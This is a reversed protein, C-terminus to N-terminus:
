GALRRYVDEHSRATGEWTFLRARELGREVYGAPDDLVAAVARAMDDPSLPDFYEAADGCVEPLSTATSVAVPCGCAMAELPPLGFGEYLSPFVLASATRYLAVLEDDPVRGRTEVGQPLSGPDHGTGTLVLRLEPQERRSLAFAEYLRSHNKHPWPNAPYLLFPQRPEDGPHLRAHDIGLPIAVVRAPDLGYRALLTERAHESIAIVVRSSTVARRYLVRRYALEARSFFEPYTEHQLDHVTVAAPATDGPPPIMVSLPFHVADLSALGLLRRLRGPAVWARGMAAARGATTSPAGYERIVRSPLGDAADSAIPPVFAEYELEGVRALARTLERAYTESGGVVGPVLTLLSIGVKV